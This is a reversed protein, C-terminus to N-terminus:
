RQKGKVGALVEQLKMAVADKIGEAIRENASKLAQETATAIGYQLHQDILSVIRTQNPKWGYSDRVEAKSRGQYDVKETMYAEAREVLYETFTVSKGTKEGWENTRQLVIGEVM